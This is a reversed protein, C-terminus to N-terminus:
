KYTIIPEKLLLLYTRTQKNDPYIKQVNFAVGSHKLTVFNTGDMIPITVIEDAIHGYGMDVIIRQGVHLTRRDIADLM